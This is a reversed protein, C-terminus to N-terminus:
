FFFSGVGHLVDRIISWRPQKLVADQGLIWRSYLRSYELGAHKIM